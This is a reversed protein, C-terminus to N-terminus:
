LRQVINSVYSSVLPKWTLSSPINKTEGQGIGGGRKLTPFVGSKMISLHDIDISTSTRFLIFYLSIFSVLPKEIPYDLPSSSEVLSMLDNKTM